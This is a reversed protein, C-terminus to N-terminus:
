SNHGTVNQDSIGNLFPLTLTTMTHGSKSIHISTHHMPKDHRTTSIHLQTHQTSTFQTRPITQTTKSRSRSTYHAPIYQMRSTIPYTASRQSNHNHPEFHISNSFQYTANLHSSSHHPMPHAPMLELQSIKHNATHHTPMSLHFSRPHGPNSYHHSTEHRANLLPSTGKLFATVQLALVQMTM